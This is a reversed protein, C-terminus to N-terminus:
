KKQFTANCWDKSAGWYQRTWKWAGNTGTNDVYGCVHRSNDMYMFFIRRTNGDYKQLGGTFIGGYYVTTNALLTALEKNCVFSVMQGEGAALVADVVEELTTPLPSPASFVKVKAAIEGHVGATYALTVRTGAQWVRATTGEQARLVGFFTDSSDSSAKHATVHAIEYNGESDELVIPFREGTGEPIDPFKFGSGAEVHIEDASEDIPLAMLTVARNAFLM